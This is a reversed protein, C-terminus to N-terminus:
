AAAPLEFAPEDVYSWTTMCEACTQGGHADAAELVLEAECWPCTPDTM